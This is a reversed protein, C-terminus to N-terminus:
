FAHSQLSPLILGVECETILQLTTTTIIIIIICYYYMACQQQQSFIIGLYRKEITVTEVLCNCLKDIILIFILVFVKNQSKLAYLVNHNYWFFPFLCM